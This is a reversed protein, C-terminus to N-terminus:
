DCNDTIIIEKTKENIDFSILIDKKYSNTAEDFYKEASDLSNDIYEFFVRIPDDKYFAAIAVLINSKVELKAM